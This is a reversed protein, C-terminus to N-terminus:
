ALLPQQFSTRELDRHKYVYPQGGPFVMDVFLGSDPICVLSSSGRGNRKWETPICEGGLLLSPPLPLHLHIAWDAILPSVTEKGRKGEGGREERRRDEGGREELRKGKREDGEGIKM